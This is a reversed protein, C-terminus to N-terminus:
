CLYSPLCILFGSYGPLIYRKYLFYINFNNICLLINNLKNIITIYNLINILFHLCVSSFEGSFALLLLYITCFMKYDGSALAYVM